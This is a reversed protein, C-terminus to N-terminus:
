EEALSAHRLRGGVRLINTSDLFPQLNAFKQIIEEFDKKGGEFFYHLQTQRICIHLAHDLESLSFPGVMMSEGSRLQRRNAIGRKIWAVSRLLKMYSSFREIWSIFHDCPSTASLTVLRKSM